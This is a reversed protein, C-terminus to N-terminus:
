NLKKFNKLSYATEEPKGSFPFVLISKIKPNNVLEKLHHLQYDTIAIGDYEQAYILEDTIHTKAFNVPM